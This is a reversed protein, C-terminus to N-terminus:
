PADGGTRVAEEWAQKSPFASWPPWTYDTCPCGTVLCRNPGFDDPPPYDGEDIITGDVVSLGKHEDFKHRCRRDNCPYIYNM